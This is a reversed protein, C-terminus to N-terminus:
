PMEKEVTSRAKPGGPQTLTRGYPTFFLFVAFPILLLCSAVFAYPLYRDVNGIASALYVAGWMGVSSFFMAGLSLFTREAPYTRAALGFFAPWVASFGVGTLFLSPVYATPGVAFAAPVCFVACSMCIGLIAKESLRRSLLAFVIRGVFIGSIMLILAVSAWREPGFWATPSPRLEFVLSGLISTAGAEAGTIFAFQLMCAWVLMDRPFRIRRGSERSLESERLYQLSARPWFLSELALLGFLVTFALATPGVAAGLLLVAVPASLKGFSNVAHLTIIGTHPSSEWLDAFIGNSVGALPHGVRLLFWATALALLAWGPAPRVLTLLLCGAFLGFAGARVFNARVTRVVIALVLGLTGGAMGIIFVWLGLEARSLGVTRQVSERLAGILPPGMAGTGFLLLLLSGQIRPHKM